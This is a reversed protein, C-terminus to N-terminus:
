IEIGLMELNPIYENYGMCNPHFLGPEFGKKFPQDKVSACDFDDAPGPERRIVDTIWKKTQAWRQSGELYARHFETKALRLANKYSSRYVGPGPHLDKMWKFRLDREPGPHLDKMWEFRLDREPFILRSKLREAISNISEGSNIGINIDQIIRRYADDSYKWIHESLTVGDIPNKLIYEVGKLMTYTWHASAYILEPNFRKDVKLYTFMSKTSETSTAVGNKLSTRIGTKIAKISNTKVDNIEARIVAKLNEKENNTIKVKLKANVIGEIKNASEVYIKKLEAEHRLSNKLYEKNLKSTEKKLIELAKEKNAM